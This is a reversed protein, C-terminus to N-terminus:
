EKIINQKIINGHLQLRYTQKKTNARVITNLMFLGRKKGKM